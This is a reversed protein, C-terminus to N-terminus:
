FKIKGLIAEFFGILFGVISLTIIIPVMGIVLNLFSPLITVVGDIIPGVTGNLDFDAM